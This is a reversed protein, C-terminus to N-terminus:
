SANRTQPNTASLNLKAKRAGTFTTGAPRYLGAGPGTPDDEGWYLDIQGGQVGAGVDSVRWWRNRLKEPLLAHETRVWTGPQIRSSRSSVACSQLAILPQQRTGKPVDTFGWRGNYYIYRFGRYATALRGHGEVQVARLFDAAYYQGNLGVRTERQLNFGRGAVFGSERPTYYVTCDALRDSTRALSPMASGLFLGIALRLATRILSLRKMSTGNSPEHWHTAAFSFDSAFLPKVSKIKEPVM